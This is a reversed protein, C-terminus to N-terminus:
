LYGRQKALPVVQQLLGQAEETKGMEWAQLAAELLTQLQGPPPQQTPSLLMRITNM